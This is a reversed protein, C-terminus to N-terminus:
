DEVTRSSAGRASMRRKRGDAPRLRSRSLTAASANVLEALSEEILSGLVDIDTM